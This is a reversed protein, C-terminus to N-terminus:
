WKQRCDIFGVQDFHKTAEEKFSVFDGCFLDSTMASAFRKRNEASKNRV